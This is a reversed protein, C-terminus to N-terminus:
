TNKDKEVREVGDAGALTIVVVGTNCRYLQWSFFTFISKELRCAGGGGDEGVQHLMKLLIKGGESRGM